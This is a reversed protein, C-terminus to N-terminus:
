STKNASERALVCNEKITDPFGIRGKHRGPWNM